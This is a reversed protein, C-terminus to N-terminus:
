MQANRITPPLAEIKLYRPAQTIGTSLPMGVASHNKVHNDHTFGCRTVSDSLLAILAACQTKGCNCRSKDCCFRAATKSDYASNHLNPDSLHSRLRLSFQEINLVKYEAYPSSRKMQNIM